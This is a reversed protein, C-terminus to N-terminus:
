SNLHFLHFFPSCLRRLVFCTRPAHKGRRYWYSEDGDLGSYGGSISCLESQVLLRHTVLYHNLSADETKAPLNCTNNSWRFRGFWDFPLVMLSNNIIVHFSYYNESTQRELMRRRAQPRYLSLFLLSSFLSPLLSLLFCPQSFPPLFPRFPLFRLFSSLANAFFPVLSSLFPFSSPFYFHPNISSFYKEFCLRIRTPLIVSSKILPGHM